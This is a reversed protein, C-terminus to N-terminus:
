PGVSDFWQGGAEIHWRIGGTLHIHKALQRRDPRLRNAVRKGRYIQLVTSLCLEILSKGNLHSKREEFKLFCCRFIETSVQSWYNFRELLRPIHQGFSFWSKELANGFFM